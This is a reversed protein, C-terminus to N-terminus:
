GPLYRSQQPLQPAGTHTTTQALRRLLARIHEFLAIPNPGGDRHFGAGLDALSSRSVGMDCFDRLLSRMCTASQATNPTATAMTPLTPAARAASSESVLPLQIRLM